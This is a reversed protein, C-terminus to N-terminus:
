AAEPAWVNVVLCDEGEPEGDRGRVVAAEASIPPPNTRRARPIQLCAPGYGAADRVGEWPEVPEPPRFRARGSTPAGYPIGKWSRVGREATGRVRGSTTTVVLESM